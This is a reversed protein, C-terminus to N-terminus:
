SEYREEEQLLERLIGIAYELKRETNGCDRYRSEKAERYEKELQQLKLLTKEKLDLKKDIVFYLNMVNLANDKLVFEISCHKYDESLSSVNDKISLVGTSVMEMLEYGKFYPKNISM